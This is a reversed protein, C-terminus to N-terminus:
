KQFDSEIDIDLSRSEPMVYKMLGGDSFDHDALWEATAVYVAGNTLGFPGSVSICGYGMQAREICADIDEATRLPSTPQLLVVWDAPHLSLAHRIVDESTATDTALETPRPLVSIWNVNGGIFCKSLVMDGIEKDDTSIALVDIYRSAYGHDVAWIVLPKGRYERLNKRPVRRSGGRAPVVALVRKGNIM